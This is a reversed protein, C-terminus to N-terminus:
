SLEREVLQQLAFALAMRDKDSLTVGKVQEAYRALALYREHAPMSGFDPMPADPNPSPAPLPRFSVPDLGLVRFIDPMYRSRQTRGAEIDAISPQRLGAKRALDEQSMGLEERRNRIIEGIGAMAPLYARGM